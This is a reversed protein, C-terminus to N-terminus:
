NSGKAGIVVLYYSLRTHTFLTRFFLLDFMQAIQQSDKILIWWLREKTVRQIIWEDNQVDVAGSPKIFILIEVIKIRKCVRHSSSIM